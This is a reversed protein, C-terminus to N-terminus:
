HKKFPSLLFRGIRYSKTSRIKEEAHSKAEICSEAINAEEIDILLDAIVKDQLYYRICSSNIGFRNVLFVYTKKLPTFDSKDSYSFNPCYSVLNEFYEFHTRIYPHGNKNALFTYVIDDSQCSNIIEEDVLNLYQGFYEAKTLSACGCHCQMGFLIIRNGSIPYNPYKLHTEIFDAIMYNPYLWDDDISIVCDNPYRKLTPILKKYVKTDHCRHVEVKHKDLYEQINEPIVLHYALNLVVLDPPLTQAFITDLVAPINSIRASWTTLSVIIRESM